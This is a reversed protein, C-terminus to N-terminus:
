WYMIIYINQEKLKTWTNLLQTTIIPLKRM